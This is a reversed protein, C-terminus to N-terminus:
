KLQLSFRFRTTPQIQNSKYASDSELQLSFRIRTTPQIQNSNYASDTRTTPQIQNLQLSFRIQTTPQIHNSNYASDSKLQLSFRVSQSWKVSPFVSMIVTLSVLTGVM